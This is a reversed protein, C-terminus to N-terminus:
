ARAGLTVLAGLVTLVAAGLVFTLLGDSLWPYRWFLDRLASDLRWLLRALPLLVVVSLLMWAQVPWRRRVPPVFDAGSIPTLPHRGPPAPSVKDASDHIFVNDAM